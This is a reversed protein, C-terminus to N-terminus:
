VIGISILSDDLYAPRRGTKYPNAVAKELEAMQTFTTSWSKGHLFHDVKRIWEKDNISMFIAKEICEVFHEPHDAIQLLGKEFYPHMVDTISTSVIPKGAALIEKTKTPSMLKTHDNVEYPMIACDWGSIYSPLAHYDKRGLYHINPRKPLIDQDITKVPGIIIFQFEPRLDALKELLSGKFREDIVGYFGIRPHPINEQDMPEKLHQRARSFHAYDVANPFPYMNHHEYKKAEYVSHGATFVLQAKEMLEAERAMLAQPDGQFSSQDDNCDYVTTIPKLHRSYTLAMPSYYIIAYENINEDDILSDVLDKMSLVRAEPNLGAPLHPIVVQVGEQTEKIHLKAHTAQGIIPEEFYFVRRHKAYRSLLHQPRHFVFDWRLHSFVLLDSTECPAYM